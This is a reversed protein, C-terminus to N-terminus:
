SPRIHRLVLVRRVQCSDLVCVDKPMIVMHQDSSNPVDGHVVGQKQMHVCRKVDCYDPETAQNKVWCGHTSRVESFPTQKKSVDRFSRHRMNQRFLAVLAVPEQHQMFAVCTNVAM